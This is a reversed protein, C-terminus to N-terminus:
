MSIKMLLHMALGSVLPVSLNDDIESSLAETVTAVVAGVSILWFPLEPLYLAPILSFVFFALSGEYSKNRFRHRGWKRGILAGATDGIIIFSLACIAVPKPFMVVTLVTSFMIYSAGTYRCDEQPRILPGWIRSVFHWLSWGRLRATDFLIFLAALPILVLLSVQKDTLLYGIPIVLAFLHTAKRLSENLYTINPQSDLCGGSGSENTVNSSVASETRKMRKM